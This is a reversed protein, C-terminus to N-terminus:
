RNKELFTGKKVYVAIMILKLHQGMQHHSIGHQVNTSMSWRAMTEMIFLQGMM